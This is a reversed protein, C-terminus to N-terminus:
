HRAPVLRWALVSGVVTWTLVGNLAMFLSYNLPYLETGWLQLHASLALFLGFLSGVGMRKVFGPNGRSCLVAVFWAPILPALLLAVISVVVHLVGGAGDRLSHVRFVPGEEYRARFLSDPPSHGPVLYLGTEPLGRDLAELVAEEEPVEKYGWEDRFPLVGQSLVTWVLCVVGALLGSIVVSRVM